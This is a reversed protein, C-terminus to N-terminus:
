VLKWHLELIEKLKCSSKCDQLRHPLKCETLVFVTYSFLVILKIGNYLSILYAFLPLLLGYFFELAQSFIIM